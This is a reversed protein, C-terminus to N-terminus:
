HLEALADKIIASTSRGSSVVGKLTDNIEKSSYGLAELALRVEELEKNEEGSALHSLKGKLEIIIKEATRKGVGPTRSLTAVDGSEIAQALSSPPNTSIMSLASKPGIGSVSILKEFVFLESEDQFGFLSLQDERVHTHIHLSLTKNEQTSVLLSLPALVKYGVGSILLTLHDGRINIVTGSLYGIMPSLIICGGAM